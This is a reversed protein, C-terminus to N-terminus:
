IQICISLHGILLQIIPRVAQEGLLHEHPFRYPSQIADIKISKRGYENVFVGLFVMKKAFKQIKM